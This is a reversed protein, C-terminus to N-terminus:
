SKNLNFGNPPVCAITFLQGFDTLRLESYIQSSSKQNEGNPNIYYSVNVEGTMVEKILNLSQLHSVYMEFYQPFALKEVAHPLQYYQRAEPYQIDSSNRFEQRYNLHFVGYRLYYLLL